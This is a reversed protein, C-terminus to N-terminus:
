LTSNQRGHATVEYPERESPGDQSWAGAISAAISAVLNVSSDLTIVRVSLSQSFSHAGFPLTFLLWVAAGASLAAAYRSGSTSSAHWMIAAGIPITLIVWLFWVEATWPLPRGIAAVADEWEKRMYAFWAVGWVLNYVLTWLAGAAVVRRPSTISVPEEEEELADDHQGSAPPLDRGRM